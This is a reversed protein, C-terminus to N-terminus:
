EKKEDGSDIELAAKDSVFYNNKTVVLAGEKIGEGEIQVLDGSRVGLKVAVKRAVLTPKEAADKKEASDSKEKAAIPEKAATKPEDKGKDGTTGKEKGEDKEQKKEALFLYPEETEEVVAARPVVL